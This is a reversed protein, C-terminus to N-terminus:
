DIKKDFALRLGCEPLVTGCYAFGNKTLIHQMRKNDVHTDIRLVSFGKSRCFEEALGFVVDALGQGRFADGIAIRHIVAYPADYRWVGQINPYAPDGDFSIYLYAANKGDKKVVYGCGSAIDQRIIDANPFSDAWQVFGQERQFDRGSRLIDICESLEEPQAPQLTCNKDM